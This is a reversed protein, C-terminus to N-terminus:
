VIFVKLDLLLISSDGKGEGPEDLLSFLGRLGFLIMWPM